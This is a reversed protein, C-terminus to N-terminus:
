RRGSPPLSPAAAPPRGARVLLLNTFVRLSENLQAFVIDLADAILQARISVPPATETIQVPAQARNSFDIARAIGATIMRGPARVRIAGGRANDRALQGPPGIQGYSVQAAWAWAAVAVVGLKTSCGIKM